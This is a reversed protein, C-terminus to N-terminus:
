KEINESSFITLKDLSIFFQFHNLFGSENKETKTEEADKGGSKLM